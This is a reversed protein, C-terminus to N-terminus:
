EVLLLAAMIGIGAMLALVQLLSKIPEPEKHLEPILDTGAIYVFAGASFPVLFQEVSELPLVWLAAVAGV